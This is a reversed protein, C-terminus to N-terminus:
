GLQQADPWDAPILSHIRDEGADGTHHPLGSKGFNRSKQSEQLLARLRPMLHRTPILPERQAAHNTQLDTQLSPIHGYVGGFRVLERFLSEFRVAEM